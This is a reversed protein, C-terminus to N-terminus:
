FWLCPEVSGKADFGGKEPQGELVKRIEPEDQCEDRFVIKVAGVGWVILLFYTRWILWLILPQIAYFDRSIFPSECLIHHM